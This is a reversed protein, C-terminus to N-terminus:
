ARTEAGQLRFVVELEERWGSALGVREVEIESSLFGLITETSPHFHLSPAILLLRPPDPRLEIGPFYGLKAFEGRELHWRVRMWYDIAQLPLHLDESAKLEIVALRGRYDAALLDIVGREDASFTPAQSYVPPSNLSADITALSRRVQSELWAEPNRLYVPNLKDAADPSRLRAAEAALTELERSSRVTRRSGLGARIEPGHARAIELGRVRLSVSGDILDVSEVHPPMCTERLQDRTDLTRRCVPLRTDLNGVDNPDVLMEQANGYAYVRFSTRTRDLCGLRFCTNRELGQPLFLALGEVAIRPERQRLHALWILGFSLVGSPELIEPAAGIAAWGKSGKVLLARPYAPSRSHILDTESSLNAIRWGPFQRSLSRRFRERFTMRSARRSATQGRPRMADTLEVSGDTRGWREAAFTIRGPHQEVVAKLKRALTRTDDWIEVQLVGNRSEAHFAGAVVPFPAEGPEILVPQKASAVFHNWAALLDDM